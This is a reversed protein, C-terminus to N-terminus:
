AMSERKCEELLRRLEEGALQSDDVMDVMDRVWMKREKTDDDRSSLARM